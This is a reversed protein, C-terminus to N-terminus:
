INTIITLVTMFMNGVKGLATSICTFVKIAVVCAEGANYDITWNRGGAIITTLMRSMDETKTWNRGGAIITTLMRSMDETKDWVTHWIQILSIHCFFQLALSSQHIQSENCTDIKWQFITATFQKVQDSRDPVYFENWSRCYRNAFAPIHTVFVSPIIGSVKM